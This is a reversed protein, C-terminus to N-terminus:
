DGSRRRLIRFGNAVGIEDYNRVLYNELPLDSPHSYGPFWRTLNEGSVLTDWLVFEVKARALEKVVEEFQAPTNYNPVLISYRSPTRVDALYYYMPYYPYVFLPANASVHRLVFELAPDPKDVRVAGRRTAIVDRASVTRIVSFAGSMLVAISLVSLVVLQPRPTVLRTALAFVGVLLLPSGWILHYIDPRHLESLWMASGMLLYNAVTANVAIGDRRTQIGARVLLAVAMLPLMAITAVPILCMLTAFPLLSDTAKLVRVVVGLSAGFTAYGYSVRNLTSYETSPWVVTAYFLDDLANSSYFWLGVCALTCVYSAVLLVSQRGVRSAGAVYKSAVVIGCAAALLAAGKLPIICTTVAALSGAAVLWAGRRTIQWQLVCVATTVAFLVSDWHHSSAPWLPIAVFTYLAWPLAAFPGEHICRTLYHILLSIGVWTLLLHARLAFWSTGFVDFWGALWYFSGPGMVEFFDRYPVEGRAVRIAGYVITGEDGVRWLIRAFFFLYGASLCAVAFLRLLPVRTRLGAHSGDTFWKSM